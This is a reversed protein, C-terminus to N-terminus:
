AVARGVLNTSSRKQYQGELAAPSLYGLTSHKHQRNYWVKIREFLASHAASHCAVPFPNEGPTALAAKWRSIQAEHIGLGRATARINGREKALRVAGQKFQETHIRRSDSM